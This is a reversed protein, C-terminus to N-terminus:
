IKALSRTMKNVTDSGAKQESDINAIFFNFTLKKSKRDLKQWCLNVKSAEKAKVVVENERVGEKVYIEEGSEYTVQM